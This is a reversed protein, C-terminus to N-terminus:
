ISEISIFVFQKTQHQCNYPKLGCMEKLERGSMFIHQDILIEPLKFINKM